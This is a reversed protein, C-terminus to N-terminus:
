RFYSTSKGIMKNIDVPENDGCNGTNNLFNFDCM